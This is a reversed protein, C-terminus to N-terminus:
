HYYYVMSLFSELFRAALIISIIKQLNIIEAQNKLITYIWFGLLGAYLFTFFLYWGQFNRMDASLYGKTNRFSIQGTIVVHPESKFDNEYPDKLMPKNM